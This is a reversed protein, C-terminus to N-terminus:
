VDVEDEDEVVSDGLLDADDLLNISVLCQNLTKHWHRSYMLRRELLEEDAVSNIQSLHKVCFVRDGSIHGDAIVGNCCAIDAISRMSRLDVITNSTYDVKTHCWPMSSHNNADVNCAILRSSEYAYLNRLRHSPMATMVRIYGKGMLSLDALAALLSFKQARTLEHSYYAVRTASFIVSRIESYHVQFDCDSNRWHLRRLRKELEDTREKGLLKWLLDAYEPCLSGFSLLHSISPANIKPYTCPGWPEYVAKVTEEFLLRLTYLDDAEYIAHYQRRLARCVHSLSLIVQLQTWRIWLGRDPCQRVFHHAITLLIDNPLRPLLSESPAPPQELDRKM